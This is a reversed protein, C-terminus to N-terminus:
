NPKYLNSVQVVLKRSISEQRENLIKDKKGRVYLYLVDFQILETYIM